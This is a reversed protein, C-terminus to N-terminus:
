IRETQKDDQYEWFDWGEPIMRWTFSTTIRELPSWEGTIINKIWDPHQEKLNRFYKICLRHRKLYSYLEPTTVAKASIRAKKTTKTKM